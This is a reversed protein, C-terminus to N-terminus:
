ESWWRKLHQWWSRKELEKTPRKEENKRPEAPSQVHLECWETPETGSVFTELRKNPCNDGALKGTDTDIYVSVVNDPVTFIKPPVNSLAQETYEAFIPAAKHSETVSIMRGKDYGVWVATSLEPTYGVIWADTDTTGTKGAVPRKMSPAVRSGTGGSEFVSEMLSTLVYADAPKVVQEAQVPPAEYLVNGSSDIVKLVSRPIARKGENSFVGYASAMEIPSVPFTGLALSPLPKMGSDIGLRRALSIVEEPGIKMMTSVAFINDSVAMAHRLDINGYYKGGYNSPKYQQRGNDYTFTSPQSVFHTVATIARKELAALYVFPKFSSGPQRTNAFVRNYQNMRYNKGGVMAKMYGNRPDISVLAAQLDGEVPIFKSIAQEAAAQARKDLTTYVRLGGAEIQQDPIGLLDLEQRVYDRFYPAVLLESREEKPRIAVTENYANQAQKQTIYGTEVMGQLVVKQRDKANKMNFYPSYYSPGRPIGALIASEALTLDRAKKGFYLQAAAEIGYAGHGYYVQNLYQELIDDKSYKMELQLAYQAEKVKRAWTREHNLYLNRALQQTLTSAGQKKSMSEINVLMARAIGKFDIGVHHYFQRDETAITAHIVDPAIDSLRVSHQQKQGSALSTLEAGHGDYIISPQQMDSAPLDTVYLYGLLIGCAGLLLAVSCGTIKLWRCIRLRRKDETKKGSLRQM